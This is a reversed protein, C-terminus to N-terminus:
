GEARLGRGHVLAAYDDGAEAEDTWDAVIHRGGPAIDNRADAADARDRMEIRAREGRANGTLDAVQAATLIHADDVVRGTLKPFTQASAATATLLLVTMALAAFCDLLRKQIAM